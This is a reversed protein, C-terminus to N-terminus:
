QTSTTLRMSAGSCQSRWSTGGSTVSSASAAVSRAVAGGPGAGAAARRSAQHRAALHPPHHRQLSLDRALLPSLGAASAEIRIAHRERFQHEPLLDDLLSGEAPVALGTSVTSIMPM